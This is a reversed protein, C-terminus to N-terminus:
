KGLLVPLWTLFSHTVGVAALPAGVALFLRVPYASVVRIKFAKSM